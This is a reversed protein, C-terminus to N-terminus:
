VITMALQFSENSSKRKFSPCNQYVDRNLCFINNKNAFSFKILFLQLDYTGHSQCNHKNHVTVYFNLLIM